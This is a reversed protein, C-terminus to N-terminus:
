YLSEGTMQSCQVKSLPLALLLALDTFLICLSWTLNGYGENQVNWYECFWVYICIYVVGVCIFMMIMMM